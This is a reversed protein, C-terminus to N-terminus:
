GNAGPEDIRDPFAGFLEAARRIMPHGAVEARRQLVTKPRAAPNIGGNAKDGDIAEFELQVRRGTVEALAQEFKARNAPEECISKSLTYEQRFSVVLRNPARIAACCFHRAHEGVLGPVKAAAQSWVETANEPSISASAAANTPSVGGRDSSDAVALPAAPEGGKKKLGGSEPPVITAPLARRGDAVVAAGAKLEAVLESLEAVDGLTAIRVLAL